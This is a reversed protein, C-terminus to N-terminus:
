SRNKTGVVPEDMGTRVYGFAMRPTNHWVGFNGKPDLVTLAPSM